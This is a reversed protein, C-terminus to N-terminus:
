FQLVIKACSTGGCASLDVCNWTITLTTCDATDAFGHWDTYSTLYWENGGVGDGRCDFVLANVDLCSGFNQTGQWTDFGLNIYRVTYSGNCSGGATVTATASRPITNPCCATQINSNCCSMCSLDYTTTALHAVAKPLAEFSPKYSQCNQCCALGDIRKQTTCQGYISCERLKVEVHGRCSPCMRRLGTDKGLHVCPSELHRPAFGKEEVTVLGTRLDIQYHKM